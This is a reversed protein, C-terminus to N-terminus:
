SFVECEVTTEPSEAQGTAEIIGVWCGWSKKDYRLASYSTLLTNRTTAVPEESQSESPGKAVM